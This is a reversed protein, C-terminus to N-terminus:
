GVLDEISKSFRECFDKLDSARIKAVWDVDVAKGPYADEFQIEVEKPDPGDSSFRLRRHSAANRLHYTLKGLTTTEGDRDQLITWRPWGKEELDALSWNEMIGLAREEWPFIILGLLSTTIETVEHVDEGERCKRSIFELNKRVRKAFGETTNRQLSYRETVPFGEGLLTISSFCEMM